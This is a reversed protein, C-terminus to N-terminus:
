FSLYLFSHSHSTPDVLTRSRMREEKEKERERGKERGKEREKKIMRELVSGQLLDTKRGEDKEKRERERRM